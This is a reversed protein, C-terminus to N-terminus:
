PLNTELIINKRTLQSQDNHAENQPTKEANSIEEDGSYISPLTERERERQLGSPTSWIPATVEGNAVHGQHITWIISIVRPAPTHTHIYIYIYIVAMDYGFKESFKGYRNRYRYSYGHLKVNLV